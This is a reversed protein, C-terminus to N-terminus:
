MIRPPHQVSPFSRSNRKRCRLFFFQRIKQNNLNRNPDEQILTEKEPNCVDAYSVDASMRIPKSIFDKNKWTSLTPTGRKPKPFSPCREWSAIHGTQKCHICTPNLIKEKITCDRSIHNKGCKLCRPTSNCN